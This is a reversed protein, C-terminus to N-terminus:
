GYAANEYESALDSELSLVTRTKTKTKNVCRLDCQM